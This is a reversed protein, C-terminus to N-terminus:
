KGLITKMPYMYHLFYLGPLYIKQSNVSCLVPLGFIVPASRIFVFNEHGSRV